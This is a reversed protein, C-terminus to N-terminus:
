LGSIRITASLTQANTSTNILRVSCGSSTMAFYNVNANESSFSASSISCIARASYYQRRFVVPVVVSSNAPVSSSVTQLEEKGGGVVNNITSGSFQYPIGGTVVSVGTFDLLGTDVNNYVGTVPSETLIDVNLLRMTGMSATNAKGISLARYNMTGRIKLGDTDLNPMNVISVVPMSTSEFAGSVSVNRWGNGFATECVSAAEMLIANQSIGAAGVITLNVLRNNSIAGGTNPIGELNEVYFNVGTYSNSIYGSIENNEAILQNPRSNINVAAKYLCRTLNVGVKNGSSGSSIYLGHRAIDSGKVSGENGTCGNALLVGYGESKDLAGVINNAQVSFTHHKTKNFFAATNVGNARININSGEAELASRWAIQSSPLFSRSTGNVIVNVTCFNGSSIAGDPYPMDLLDFECSILSRNNPVSIINDCIYRGWMGNVDYGSDLAKQIFDSAAQGRVAGFMEPTVSQGDLKRFFRTGTQSVIITGSNDISTDDDLHAIFEGSGQGPYADWYGKLFIRAMNPIGTLARLAEISSVEGVYKGGDQAGVQTRFTLDSVDIWNDNWSGDTNTPSSGPPVIVPYDGRWSYFANNAEWRLAESILTLNAGQEFSDVPTYGSQRIADDIAQRSNEYATASATAALDASIEASESSTVAISAAAEAKEAFNGSQQASQAYSKAEAAANEAISASLRAVQTETIAM